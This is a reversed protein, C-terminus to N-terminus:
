KISERSQNVLRPETLSDSEKESEEIELYEIKNM